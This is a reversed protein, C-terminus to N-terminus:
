RLCPPHAGSIECSYIKDIFKQASKSRFSRITFGNWGDFAEVIENGSATWDYPAGFIHSAVSSQKKRIGNYQLLMQVCAAWCWCDEEQRTVYDRFYTTKVSVWFINSDKIRFIEGERFTQAQSAAFCFTLIFTVIIRM